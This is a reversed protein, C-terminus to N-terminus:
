AKAVARLGEGRLHLRGPFSGRVQSGEDHIALWPLHRELRAEKSEPRKMRARFLRQAKGLTRPKQGPLGIKWEM